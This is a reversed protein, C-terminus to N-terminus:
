VGLSNIKLRVYENLEIIDKIKRPKINKYKLFENRNILEIIKKSIDFFKIKKSLYLNVYEDNASVLITEYLSDTKPMKKLINVVPFQNFDVNKLDLNNLKLLDLNKSSITKYNEEYLSNIIPIMMTTDHAIIKKLGDKYDIIAHIYSNPHILISLKNYNVDFIKKAEIVEFVKNMMTASDISIKRGMTWNPHKLVQSMKIKKIKNISLNLLPGGSATIYIKKINDLKIKKNAYWISFHESDVPIFNTKNKILEKKILNWACIISEKNAIAINKTYKIIKITPDLGNIGIISSMVYDIKKPLIKNLENFNNYIKIKNKKSLLKAINYSKKDTIIVKNVKFIKAQRLVDRFNKNATLLLIKFNKKDNSIIKLLTKGISGTSGLIAIKKKM